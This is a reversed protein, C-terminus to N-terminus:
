RTGGDMTTPLPADHRHPAQRSSAGAAPWHHPQTTLNTNLMMCDILSDVADSVAPNQPFKAAFQGVNCSLYRFHISERLSKGDFSKKVNRGHLTFTVRHRVSTVRRRFAVRLHGHCHTRVRHFADIVPSDTHWCRSPELRHAAIFPETNPRSQSSWLTAVTSQKPRAARADSSIFVAYSTTRVQRRFMGLETRCFIVRRM